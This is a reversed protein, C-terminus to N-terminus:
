PRPESPRRDSHPRPNTHRPGLHRPESHAASRTPRRTRGSAPKRVAAFDENLQKIARRNTIEDAPSMNDIILRGDLHNIEHQWVRATLESGECRLPKGALDFGQLVAKVARRMQVSVGPLSLCGEERVEAGQLDALSPNVCVLDAGEEEGPNCVFLRISQGVQPAALGVGKHEHMLDIMRQALRRLGEDFKEVPACKRRLAPDPYNLIRLRNFDPM